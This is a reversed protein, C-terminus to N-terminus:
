NCQSFTDNVLISKFLHDSIGRAEFEKVLNNSKKYRTSSHKKTENNLYSSTVFEYIEDSSFIFFNNVEIILCHELNYIKKKLDLKYFFSKFTTFHPRMMLLKKKLLFVKM